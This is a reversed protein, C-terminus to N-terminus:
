RSMTGTVLIQNDVHEIETVALAAQEARRKQDATKVSGRLTAEHGLVTIQVNAAADKLAPDAMMRARIMEAVDRDESVGIRASENTPLPEVISPASAATVTVKEPRHGERTCGVAVLVALAALSVNPGVAKM